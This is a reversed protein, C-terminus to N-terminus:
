YYYINQRVNLKSGPSTWLYKINMKLMKRIETIIKHFIVNRLHILLITIVNQTQHKNSNYLKRFCKIKRNIKFNYTDNLLYLQVTNWIFSFFFTRRKCFKSCKTFTTLTSNTLRLKFGYTQRLWPESPKLKVPFGRRGSLGNLVADEAM